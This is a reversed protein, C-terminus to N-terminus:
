LLMGFLCFLKQTCSLYFSAKKDDDEARFSFFSAFVVSRLYHKLNQKSGLHFLRLLTNDCCNEQKNTGVSQFVANPYKM